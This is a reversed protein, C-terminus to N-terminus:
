NFVYNKRLLKKKVDTKTKKQLEAKKKLIKHDPVEITKSKRNIVPEKKRPAEVKIRKKEEASTDSEKKRKKPTSTALPEGSQKKVKPKDPKPAVLDQAQPNSCLDRINNYLYWKRDLSLGSPVILSPLGNPLQDTLRLNFKEEKSDVFAKCVIENKNFNFHHYKTIGLICINM